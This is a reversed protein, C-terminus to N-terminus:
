RICRIFQWVAGVLLLVYVYMALRNAVDTAQTLTNTDQPILLFPVYVLLLLAIFIPLQPKVIKRVSLRWFQTKKEYPANERNQRGEKQEKILTVQKQRQLFEEDVALTSFKPPRKTNNIYKGIKVRNNPSIIALFRYTITM